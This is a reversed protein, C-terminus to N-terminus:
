LRYAQGPRGRRGPGNNAISAAPGARGGPMRLKFKKVNLSGDELFDFTLYRRADIRAVTKVFTM